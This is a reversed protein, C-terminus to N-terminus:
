AGSTDAPTPQEQQEPPVAKMMYERDLDQKLQRLEERTAHLEFGRDVVSRLRELLRKQEEISLPGRRAWKLGQSGYIHFGRFDREGRSAIVDELEAFAAEVEEPTSTDEPREAARKLTMYSWETRVLADDPNMSRAQELFNKAQDLEGDETEFSGRQLWYHYDSSLFREIANYVGRVAARDATADYRRYLRQILYGHNLLRILLRGSPTSRLDDLRATAALAYALSEVVPPLMGAESFYNAARSAIVAHRVQVRRSSTRVLLHRAVLRDIAAIAESPNETRTAIVLEEDRLATHLSTAIAAAAYARAADGGLERCESEVKEDFRVNSTIEILAVLLQRGFRAEVARRQQVRTKGKLVGLRNARDLADLLGDVDSAGLRPVTFELSELERPALEGLAELRASRICIVVLLQENEHLLDDVLDRAADGFREVDDIFLTKVGAARVAGRIARLPARTNPNLIHVDRGRAAFELMLQMATTSKGVGATGTITVLRPRQDNVLQFLEADCDRAFAFGQTLDSWRPERGLLFEREDGQADDVIDLIPLLIRGQHDAGLREDIAAQGLEAEKTLPALIDAAFEQGTAEVWAINYGALAVRRARQLEPTVLYSGPRYERSPKEGRAEIYMWLSPENLQGGVFLVPHLQLDRVLNEYWLDPAALRQAYQRASFTVDPLDELRGNLHVVQLGTTEGTPAPQSLASIIELKRPLDFARAAADAMTDINVTYIRLWPYSFWLRYGDDLSAPDVTLRDRIVKLTANRAQRLGAEYVDQLESDDREEGPFAIEWLAAALQRGTPLPEGRDSKAGLSFGAGTFLVVQGQRIQSKLRQQTPRDM